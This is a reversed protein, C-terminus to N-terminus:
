SFIIDPGTILTKEIKQKQKTKLFAKSDRAPKNIEEAFDIGSKVRSGHVYSEFSCSRTLKTANKNNNNSIYKGVIM